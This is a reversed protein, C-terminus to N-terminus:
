VVGQILFDQNRWKIRGGEDERRASKESIKMKMKMEKKNRDHEHKNHMAMM